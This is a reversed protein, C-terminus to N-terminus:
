LLRKNAEQKFSESEFSAGNLHELMKCDELRKKYYNAYNRLSFISEPSSAPIPTKFAPTPNMGDLLAHQRLPLTNPQKFKALNRPNRPSNEYSAVYSSEKKM